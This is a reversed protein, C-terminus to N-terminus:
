GLWGKQKEHLRNAVNQLSINSFIARGPFSTPPHAKLGPCSEKRWLLPAKPFASIHAASRTGM